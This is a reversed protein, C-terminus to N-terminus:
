APEDLVIVVMEPSGDDRRVLAAALGFRGGGRGNRKAFCDISFDDIAGDLMRRAASRLGSDDQVLDCIAMELLEELPHSVLGAFYPNAWIFRGSLDVHAIGVPASEFPSTDRGAM